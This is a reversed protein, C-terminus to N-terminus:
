RVVAYWAQLFNDHTLLNKRRSLGIVTHLDNSLFIELYVGLDTLYFSLLVFYTTKSTLQSLLHIGFDDARSWEAFFADGSRVNVHNHLVSGTGSILSDASKM